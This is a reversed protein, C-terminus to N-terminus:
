GPRELPSLYAQRRWATSALDFRRSLASAASLSQLAILFLAGLVLGGASLMAAASGGGAFTGTGLPARESPELQTRASKGAGAGRQVFSSSAGPDSSDSAGPFFSPYSPMTTWDPLGAGSRDGGVARAPAGTGSSPGNPAEDSGPPTIGPLGPVPFDPLSPLGPLPPITGAPIGPLSAVTTAIWGWLSAWSPSSIGTAGALIDGLQQAASVGGPQPQSPAAGGAPQTSPQTGTGDQTQGAVQTTSSTNASTAGSIVSNTQSVAPGASPSGIVTVITVNAASGQVAAAQSGANQATGSTQGVAPGSGGSATGSNGQESGGAATGGDGQQQGATQATTNANGATANSAANNAQNIVPSSGPSNVIIQIAINTPAQQVTAAQAGAVQAAQSTQAASPGAAPVVTAAAPLAQVQEDLSPASPLPLGDQAQAVGTAALFWLVPLLTAIPKARRRRDRRHAARREERGSRAM